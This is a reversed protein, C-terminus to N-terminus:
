IKEKQCLYHMMNSVFPQSFLGNVLTEFDSCHYPEGKVQSPVWRPLFTFSLIKAVIRNKELWWANQFTMVEMDDWSFPGSM